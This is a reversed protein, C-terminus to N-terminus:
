RKRRFAEERVREILANSRNACDGCPRVRDRRPVFKSILTAGFLERSIFSGGFTSYRFATAFEAKSDLSVRVFTIIWARASEHTPKELFTSEELFAYPPFRVDDDICGNMTFTCKDQVKQLLPTNIGDGKPNYRFTSVQRSDTSTAWGIDGPVSYWWSSHILSM